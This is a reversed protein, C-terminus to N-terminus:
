FIYKSEIFIILEFLFMAHYDPIIIIIIQTILIRNLDFVFLRVFLRVFLCSYGIVSQMNMLHEYHENYCTHNLYEPSIISRADYRIIWVMFRRTM